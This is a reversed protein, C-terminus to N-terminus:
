RAEVGLIKSMHSLVPIWEPRSLVNTDELQFMVAEGVGSGDNTSDATNIQGRLIPCRCLAFDSRFLLALGILLGLGNFVNKKAQNWVKLM